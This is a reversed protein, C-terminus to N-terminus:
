RRPGGGSGAPDPPPKTTASGALGYRNDPHREVLGDDLLTALARERQSADPWVVDLEARPVPGPAERLVALLEGRVQRDTGAYRQPRRSPATPLPEGGARWACRSGLPCAGCQPSRATCLLAGLEMFAASAAAADAPEAPLLAETAALDAGTTTQGGDPRGAVVRAVLRRVNTDVVPHRQRYAFAAVARATYAGVGPLDLLEALDDPVQGGHRAVLATACGHLRLARRPYGLRGWMRIAEGPEDAALAAPEPWRDLWQRWVPLVRAVPTQQLM